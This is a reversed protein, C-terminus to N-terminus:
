EKIIKRVEVTNGSILKVFYVGDPLKSLDIQTTKENIQQQMLEQGSLNLVSLLCSGTLSTIELTLLDSVPNPYITLVMNNADIENMGSPNILTNMVTNTAVAPNTDFYIFANNEIVTGAPHPTDLKVSFSIFGNSAALNVNSDPLNINNFNFKVVGPALWEPSVNHSSVLIKLSEPNLYSDLTDIISINLAPATGTNQFHITYTLENTTFPINGTLGEGMPSVEKSNPDFSNVVPLCLNYENNTTDVDGSPVATFVYFCLSSGAVVSTNPTLYIGSTLSNWYGGNSISTLNSYNWILTDGIVTDAAYPSLGANYVVNSDLVLKLLGSAMNCGTNCVHPYFMFPVNPRVAGQSGAYCMVDMLNTCQLAFDVNLQPLTTFTYSAPSCVSSPFIFQYNSPLSATINTMWSQVANLGWAGGGDTGCGYFLYTMSPSNLTEEVAIGVGSLPVDTGNFVCDSNYDVYARGYLYAYQCPNPVPIQYVNAINYVTDPGVIVKNISGGITAFGGSVQDDNVWGFGKYIPLMVNWPTQGTANFATNIVAGNLMDKIIISDGYFSNSVTILYQMQGTSSCTNTDHTGTPQLTVMIDGATYVQANSKLISILVLITFIFHLKKM